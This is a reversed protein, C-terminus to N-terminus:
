IEIFHLTDDLIYLIIIYQLKIDIILLYYMYFRLLINNSTTKRSSLIKQEHISGPNCEVYEADDLNVM